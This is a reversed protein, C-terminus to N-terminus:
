DAAEGYGETVYTLDKWLDFLKDTTSKLGPVLKEAIAFAKVLTNVQGALHKTVLSAMEFVAAQFGHIVTLVGGIGEIVAKMFGLMGIAMNSAWEEFKGSAMFEDLKENFSALGGKLIEFVKAKMVADRFQFWKDQLMSVIGKWTKAMDETSGKFTKAWEFMVGQLEISGIKTIDEIGHKLKAFDKIMASIGKERFWDAAGLGASMARAFQDTATPLDLGFAAAVDAIPTLWDKFPVKITTLRIGSEIVEELTFPLKAATRQFERMAETAKEQSGLLVKLRIEYQEVNAAVELFSKGMKFIGRAGFYAVGIAILRKAMGAFATNAKGTARSVGSLKKEMGGLDKRVRGLGKEFKDIKAGIEVELTAAKVM